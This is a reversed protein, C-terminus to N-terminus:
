ESKTKAYPTGRPTTHSQAFQIGYRPWGVIIGPSLILEPEALFIKGAVHLGCFKLRLLEHLEQLETRTLYM